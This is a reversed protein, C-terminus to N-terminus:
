ASVMRAVDFLGKAGFGLVLLGSAIRVAPRTIWDAVQRAFLGALILNPLTGAGFALMTSAGATASGSGLATALASYVLGCPLWGWLVGLPFAQAVSRVPLFRRTAPQIRRWLGQGIREAVALLRTAGLLYLGLAMMMLNAFGYLALRLGLDIGLERGVGLGAAGLGGVIAGALAYSSLRGANYALLLVPRTTAKGALMGVIGGCMGFCHGGGFLGVWFLVLFPNDSM